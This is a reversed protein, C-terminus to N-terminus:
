EGISKARRRGPLSIVLPNPGRYVGFQERDSPLGFGHYDFLERWEPILSPLEWELQCHNCAYFYNKRLFPRVKGGCESCLLDPLDSETVSSGVGCDPFSCNQTVFGGPRSRVIITPARHCISPRKGHLIMKEDM